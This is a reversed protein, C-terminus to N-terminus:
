FFIQDNRDKETNLSSLDYGRKQALVMVVMWLWGVVLVLLVVLGVVNVIGQYTVMKMVIVMELITVMGISTVM